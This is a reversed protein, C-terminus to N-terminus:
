RIHFGVGRPTESPAEEIEVKRVDARPPGVRL